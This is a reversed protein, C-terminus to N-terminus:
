PARWCSYPGIRIVSKTTDKASIFVASSTLGRERGRALRMWLVPPRKLILSRAKPRSPVARAPAYFCGGSQRRVAARAPGGTRRRCRKQASFRSGTSRATPWPCRDWSSPGRGGKLGPDLAAEKQAEPLGAQGLVVGEVADVPTPKRHLPRHALRGQRSFFVPGLGVSRALRPVLRESKTSALPTGTPKDTAPAFLFSKM